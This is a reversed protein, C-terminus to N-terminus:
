GQWRARPCGRTGAFQTRHRPHVCYNGAREDPPCACDQSDGLETQTANNHPGACVRRAQLPIPLIHPPKEEHQLRASAGGGEAKPFGGETEPPSISQTNDNKFFARPARSPASASYM